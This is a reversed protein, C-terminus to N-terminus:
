LKENFLNQEKGTPSSIVYKYGSKFVHKFPVKTFSPSIFLADLANISLALISFPTMTRLYAIKILKDTRSLWYKM